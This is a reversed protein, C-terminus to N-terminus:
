QEGYKEKLKTDIQEIQTLVEEHKDEFYIKIDWMYGKAGKKLNISSQKDNILEKEMKKKEESIIL